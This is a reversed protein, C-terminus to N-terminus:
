PIAKLQDLFAKPRGDPLDPAFPAEVKLRALLVTGSRSNFHIRMGSTGGTEAATIPIRHSSLIDQALTRNREGVGFPAVDGRIVRSGGFVKAV